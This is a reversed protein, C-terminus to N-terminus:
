DASDQRLVDVPQSLDFHGGLSDIAEGQVLVQVRDIVSFQGLTMRLANIAQAEQLDGGRFNSQFERSFDITALGAKVRLGLLRTGPPLPSHSTGILATLAGKVPSSPSTITVRVPVLGNADGGTDVIAYITATRSAVPAPPPTSVPPVPPVAPPTVPQRASHGCGAVGAVVAACGVAAWWKISM